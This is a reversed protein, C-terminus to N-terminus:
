TTQTKLSAAALREFLSAIRYLLLLLLRLPLRESFDYWHLSSLNFTAPTRKVINEATIRNSDPLLKSFWATNREFANVCFQLGNVQMYYSVFSRWVEICLANRSIHTSFYYCFQFRTSYLVNRARDFAKNLGFCNQQSNSTSIIAENREARRLDHEGITFRPFNTYLSHSIIRSVLSQQLCLIYRSILHKKGTFRFLFLINFVDMMLVTAVSSIWWWALWRCCCCCCCGCDVWRADGFVGDFSFLPSDGRGTPSARSWCQRSTSPVVYNFGFM